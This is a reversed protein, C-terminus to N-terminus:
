TLAETVEATRREHVDIVAVSAGEAAFRRACAQGIGAGAAGTVLAVQGKFESM